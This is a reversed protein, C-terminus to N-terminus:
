QRDPSPDTRDSGDHFLRSKRVLNQKAPPSGEVDEFCGVDCTASQDDLTRVMKVLESLQAESAFRPKSAKEIVIAQCRNEIMGVLPDGELSKVSREAVASWTGVAERGQFPNGVRQRMKVRAADHMAIQLWFM